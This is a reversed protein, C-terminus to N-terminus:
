RFYFFLLSFLLLINELVLWTEWFLNFFMEEHTLKESFFAVNEQKEIKKVNILPIHCFKKM